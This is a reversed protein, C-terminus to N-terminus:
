RLHPLWKSGPSALKSVKTNSWTSRRGTVHRALRRARRAQKHRSYIPHSGHVGIYAVLLRPALEATFWSGAARRNALICPAGCHSREGERPLRCPSPVHKYALVSAVSQTAAPEPERVAQTRLPHIYWSIKCLLTLEMLVVAAVCAVISVVGKLRCDRTIHFLDWFLPPV